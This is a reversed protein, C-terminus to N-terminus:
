CRIVSHGNRILDAAKSPHMFVVDTSDGGDSPQEGSWTTWYAPGVMETYLRLQGSIDPCDDPIHNDLNRVASGEGAFILIPDADVALSLAMRVFHYAQDDSWPSREVLFVIRKKM